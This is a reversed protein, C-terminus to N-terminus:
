HSVLTIRMLHPPGSVPWWPEQGEPCHAPLSEELQSVTPLFPLLVGLM